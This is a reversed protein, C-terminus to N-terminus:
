RRAPFNGLVPLVSISRPRAAAARGGARGPSRCARARRPAAGSRERWREVREPQCRVACAPVRFLPVPRPWPAALDGFRSQRLRRCVAPTGAVPAERRRARVGLEPLGAPSRTLILTIALLALRPSQRVAAQLLLKLTKNGIELHLLQELRHRIGRDM